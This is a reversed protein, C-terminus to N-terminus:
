VKSLPYLFYFRTDSTEICGAMPGNNFTIAVSAAFSGALTSASTGVIRTTPACVESAIPGAASGIYATGSASDTFPLLSWSGATMGAVASVVAADPIGGTKSLSEHPLSLPKSLTNAFVATLTIATPAEGGAVLQTFGNGIGQGQQVLASYVTSNRLRAGEKADVSDGSAVWIVIGVIAAVILLIIGVIGKQNQPGSRLSRANRRAFRPTNM